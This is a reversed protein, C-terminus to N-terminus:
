NISTLINRKGSSKMEDSVLKWANEKMKKNKNHPGSSEYLIPFCKVCEILLEDFNNQSASEKENDM